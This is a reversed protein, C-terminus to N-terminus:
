RLDRVWAEVDGAASPLAATLNERGDDTVLVDDEIRVGIGAYLDSAEPGGPRFYLGPEVTLMMGPELLRATGDRVYDGPDHVDLGLWHSTQHPYYTKYSQERIVEDVSGALVKLDILGEVLVRVAADHVAAVPVGPGVTEVAARRAADVLDYVRRQDETFRGSAPYTRTVDGHYLGLEAGADVLVLGDEPIRADNARYHLVCANRGSGVITGFGPAGGGRQFAAEVEAQVVWEGEGSRAARAAARHGELTLAAAARTRDVEHADKRLRLEDLIGGPDVVARPGTGTRAGRARAREFAEAVIREVRPDTGLRFHIRPAGALLEPLRAELETVPHCADPTFRELAGVPGLRPGGWLEAEADRPAVFLTWTPAVGGRFVAVADPETAGTMYFLESDPRYTRDTDRSAYQVPAAPLVLVDEGLLRFAAARRARLRESPTRLLAKRDM